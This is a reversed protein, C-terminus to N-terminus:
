EDDTEPESSSLEIPIPDLIVSLKEAGYTEADAVMLSTDTLTENTTDVFEVLVNESKTRRKNVEVIKGIYWSNYPPGFWQAMRVEAEKGFWTLKSQSLLQCTELGAAALSRRLQIRPMGDTMPGMLAGHDFDGRSPEPGYLDPERADRWM